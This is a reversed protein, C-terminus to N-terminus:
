QEARSHFVLTNPSKKVVNKMMEQYEKRHPVPSLTSNTSPHLPNIHYLKRTDGFSIRSVKFKRKRTDNNKNVLLKFFELQELSVSGTERSIIWMVTTPKCDAFSQYPEAIKNCGWYLYYDIPFPFLINNVPFPKVFEETGSQTVKPVQCVLQQFLRSPGFNMKYFQVVIVLGDPKKFAEEETYCDKIHIAHLEL